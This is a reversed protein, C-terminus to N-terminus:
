LAARHMFAVPNKDHTKHARYGGKQYQQDGIEEDLCGGCAHHRLVVKRHKTINMQACDSLAADKKQGARSAQRGARGAARRGGAILPHIRVFKNVRCCVTLLQINPKEQDETCFLENSCLAPRASPMVRM